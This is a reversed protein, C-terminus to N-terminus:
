AGPLQPAAADIQKRSPGHEPSEMGEHGGFQVVEPEVVGQPAPEKRQHDRRLMRLVREPTSTSKTTYPSPTNAAISTLFAALTRGASRRLRLAKPVSAVISQAHSIDPAHRHILEEFGQEGVAPQSGSQLGSSTRGTEVGTRAAM